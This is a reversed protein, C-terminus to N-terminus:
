KAAAISEVRITRNRADLTGTVTVKRGAFPEPRKQDSLSYVTDGDELVYMADHLMVCARTCEADTPGMRMRAHGAGACQDDSIVGTFTRQEQAAPLASIALLFIALYRMRVTM